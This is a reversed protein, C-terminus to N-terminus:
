DHRKINAAACAKCRTTAPLAELRARSIELECAACRGYLGEALRAEAEAIEALKANAATLLAAIQQREWATTHGEPDHEDDTAGDAAATVIDDFSRTLSAIRRSAILRLEALRSAPGSLPRM